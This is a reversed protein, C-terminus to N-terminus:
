SRWRRSTSRATSGEGARVDDLAPQDLLDALVFEAGPPIAARHGRELNDLVIVEHGAALLQSAVISGIYGAGGTVLFKM